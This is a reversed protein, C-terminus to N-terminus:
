LNFSITSLVNDNYTNMNAVIIIIIIIIPAKILVETASKTFHKLLM